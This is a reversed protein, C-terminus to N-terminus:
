FLTYLKPVFIILGILVATIAAALVAGAAYDKILKATPHIDPKIYDIVKEIVTNILETVLVFGIVFIIIAWESPALKFLFGSIIVLVAFLLHIRFNRELKAAERLGNWAYSFGISKKKDKM